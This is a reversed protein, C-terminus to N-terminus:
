YECSIEREIYNVLKEALFVETKIFSEYTNGGIHPTIILNSNKQSYAILENKKHEHENEIVDLAAGKLTGNDLAKILAKSDVIGGRSTNIFYSGKKFSNFVSENILHHTEKCYNVHLSIIDAKSVLEEMSNAKICDKVDFGQPDYAIVNAGFANFYHSVIKGLRGMGIIGVTKGLIETGKFEDRNWNGEHVDAIAQPIKRILSLTLGLTLEATARVLKLFETEGKLSFVKIGLENCTEIDIHDLGTVPCMIIKTRLKNNLLTERTLRFGLRFWFVDYNELAWDLKEKSLNIKEVIGTKSAIKVAEDSFNDPEAIIIKLKNHM